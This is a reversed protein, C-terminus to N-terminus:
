TEPSGRRLNQLRILMTLTRELKRDLHVEYRALGEFANATLAEGLAHERIMERNALEAERKRFYPVAEEELWGSLSEDTAEYDPEPEEAWEELTELWWERTGPVMVDLARQYADEKGARLISLAKEAARSAKSNEGLERDTQEPTARLAEGVDSGAGSVCVLAAEGTDSYSQTARHLGERMASAEAMRLRRKRWVIGALEEVLHSETPGEPKHEAVLADLLDGYESADEWPLVTYRSLVAHKVANFRTIEYSNHGLAAVVSKAQEAM